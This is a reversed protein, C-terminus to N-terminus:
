YSRPLKLGYEAIQNLILADSIPATKLLRAGEWLHIIGKDEDFGKGGFTHIATDVAKMALEAALYKASNAAESLQRADANKDFLWASRYVMLRVSEQRISLEALPHQISQYAGIPTQGFM